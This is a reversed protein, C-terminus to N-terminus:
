FYLDDLSNRLIKIKNEQKKLLIDEQEIEKLLLINRETNEIFAWGYFCEYREVNGKINFTYGCGDGHKIVNEVIIGKKVDLQYSPSSELWVMDLNYIYETNPKPDICKESENIIVNEM